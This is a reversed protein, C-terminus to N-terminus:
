RGLMAYLVAAAAAPALWSPVRAAAPAGGYDLGLEVAGDPPVFGGRARYARLIAELHAVTPEERWGVDCGARGAAIYVAMRAMEVNSRPPRIGNESVMVRVLGQRTAAEVPDGPTGEPAANIAALVEAM